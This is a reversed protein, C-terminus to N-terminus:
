QESFSVPWYEIRKSARNWGTFRGEQILRIFRSSAVLPPVDGGFIASAGNISIRDIVQLDLEAFFDRRFERLQPPLSPIDGLLFGCIDCARVNSLPEALEIGGNPEGTITLQFLGSESRQKSDLIPRIECGTIQHTVLSDRFRASIGYVRTYPFRPGALVQFVDTTPLTRKGSLWLNKVQRKGQGCGLKGIRLFEPPRNGCSLQNEYVEGEALELQKDGASLFFFPYDDEHGKTYKGVLISFPAVSYEERYIKILELIHPDGEDFWFNGQVPDYFRRFLLMAREPWPRYNM